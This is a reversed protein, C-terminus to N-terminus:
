SALRHSFLGKDELFSLIERHGFAACASAFGTARHSGTLLRSAAYAQLAGTAVYPMVGILTASAEELGGRGVVYDISRHVTSRERPPMKATLNRAFADTMEWREADSKGAVQEKMQKAQQLLTSMMDRDSFGVLATCNRVRDDDRYYQPLPTGGWPLGLNTTAFGPTVVERGDGLVWEVLQNDRLFYAPELLVVMISNASGVTPVATPVCVCDLSDIGRQELCLEAAIQLPVYMYSIAPALLLGKREFAAGFEQELRMTSAQEGTTDIYNCGADLCAQVTERYYRLFPGVTNCVVKAGSFVRTLAETDHEVQVVEYVANELGAVREAMNTRIRNADRGAAIFPIGLDILQEIILMGTYGSAGYVVVPKKPLQAM